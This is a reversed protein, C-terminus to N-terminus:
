IYRMLTFNFFTLTMLLAVSVCLVKQDVKIFVTHRDHATKSIYGTIQRCNDIKVWGVPIQRVSLCICICPWLMIYQALSTYRQATFVHLRVATMNHDCMM